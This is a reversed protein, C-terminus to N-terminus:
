RDIPWRAVLELDVGVMSDININICQRNQFILCKFNTKPM